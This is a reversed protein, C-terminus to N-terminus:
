TFKPPVVVRQDPRSTRAVPGDRSTELYQLAANLDGSETLGSWEKRSIDRATFSTLTLDSAILEAIRRGGHYTTGRGLHRYLKRAHPRLYDDIFDRVARASHHDVSAPQVAEGLCYCMLHHVLALRAFLGDYKSFHGKLPETPGLDAV